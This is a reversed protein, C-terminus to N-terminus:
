HGLLRKHGKAEESAVNLVGLGSQSVAGLHEGFAQVLEGEFVFGLPIFLQAFNSIIECGEAQM